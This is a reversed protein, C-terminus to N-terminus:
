GQCSQEADCDSDSCDIARDGDNDIGDTCIEVIPTPPIVPEESLRLQDNANVNVCVNVLNREFNIRDALGNVNQTNAADAAGTGENAADTAVGDQPIQTIDVGNVNVNSSVCSIKQIDTHSSEPEPYSNYGYDNAYMQAQADRIMSPSLAMLGAAVIVAISALVIKNNNNSM